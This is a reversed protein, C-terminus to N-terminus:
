REEYIVKRVIEEDYGRSALQRSWRTRLKNKEDAPLKLFDFTKLKMTEVLAQAKDLELDVDSDIAPLGKESLYANIYLIGKGRRHLAMATKEALDVPAQLWGKGRAFQLANEVAALIQVDTVDVSYKARVLAAKLKRRLELESHDRVAILDMLKNKALLDPNQHTKPKRPM